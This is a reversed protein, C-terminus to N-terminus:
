FHLPGRVCSHYWRIQEESKVGYEKGRCEVNKDREGRAPGGQGGGRGERPVSSKAGRKLEAYEHITQM